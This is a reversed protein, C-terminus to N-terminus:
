CIKLERIAECVEFLTHPNVGSFRSDSKNESLFEVAKEQTDIKRVEWDEISIPFKFTSHRPVISIGNCTNPILYYDYRTIDGPESVVVITQVQTVNRM